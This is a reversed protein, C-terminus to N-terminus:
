FYCSFSGGHKPECSSSCGGLLEIHGLYCILNSYFDLSVHLPLLPAIFEYSVDDSSLRDFHARVSTPDKLEM